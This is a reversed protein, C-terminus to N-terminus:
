RGIKIFVSLSNSIEKEEFENKLRDLMKTNEIPFFSNLRLFKTSGKTEYDSFIKYLTGNFRINVEEVSDEKYLNSDDIQKFIAELQSHVEEHHVDKTFHSKDTEYLKMIHGYHRTLIHTLSYYDFIIEQGNLYLKYHDSKIILEFVKKILIYRYKSWEVLKFKRRQYEASSFKRHFVTFKKRLIKLEDRTEKTAIQMLQDTHNTKFVEKEWEKVLGVYNIHDREKLPYMVRPTEFNRFIFSRSYFEDLCFTHLLLNDFRLCHCVFAQEQRTLEEHKDIRSHLVRNKNNYDEPTLITKYRMTTYGISQSSFNTNVFIRVYTSIEYFLVIINLTM